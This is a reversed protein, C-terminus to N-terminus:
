NSAAELDAKLQDLIKQGSEGTMEIFKDEVEKAAEKFCSRQEETLTTITMEPKAERIKDLESEALGKQYGVIYDYATDAAQEVVKKDEDSLGDYFDKNAM